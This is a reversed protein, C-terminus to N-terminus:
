PKGQYLEIFRRTAVVTIGQRRSVPFHKINGTILFAARTAVAVELFPHDDPDPLPKALPKATAPVGSTKIFELLADVPGPRFGFKKRLLVERYEALIRSDYAAVLDGTTVWRLLDGSARYPHILGSVLVNTDLVVIM